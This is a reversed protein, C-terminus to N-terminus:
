SEFLEHKNNLILRPKCWTNFILTVASSTKDDKEFEAFSLDKIFLNIANISDIIDEIFDTYDRKCM